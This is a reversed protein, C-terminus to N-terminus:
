RPFWPAKALALLLGMTEETVLNKSYDLLIGEFQLSFKKFRDQDQEFLQRMNLQRAKSFHQQLDNFATERPNM